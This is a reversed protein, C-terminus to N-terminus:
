VTPACTCNRTVALAPEILASILPWLLPSSLGRITIDLLGLGFVSADGEMRPRVHL